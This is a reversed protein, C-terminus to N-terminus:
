GDSIATEATQGDSGRGVGDISRESGASLDDSRQAVGAQDFTAMEAPLRCAARILHLALAAGSGEGLRLELDMLPQLELLELALRHGPEASRHSAILYPRVDPCIAAALLAAAGGIVGDLVVPRSRAAAGIIAGALGAIEFGGIRALVGLPDDSRPLNRALAREITQVKHEWRAPDVGTGIGTVARPPQGTMTAIIAAAATTNGIGMDGLAILDAGDDVLQQAIEAGTDLGREVQDVTMAFGVTMNATRAGLPRRVIGAPPEDQWDVGIDVPVLRAAADRCLVNIAAGGVAFNRVMQATVVSPYASVGEAAVGHDAAMILVCPHDVRPLPTRFIGALQVHLRELSGLSGAPKTLARQRARAEAMANSDPPRIAGIADDFVTM